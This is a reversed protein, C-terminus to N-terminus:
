PVRTRPGLGTKRRQEALEESRDQCVTWERIVIRPAPRLEHPLPAPDLVRVHDSPEPAAPPVLSTFRPYMTRTGSRRRRPRECVARRRSRRSSLRWHSRCFRALASDACEPTEATSRDSSGGDCPRSSRKICMMSCCRSPWGVFDRVISPLREDDHLSARHRSPWAIPEQRASLRRALDQRFVSTTRGTRQETRSVKNWYDTPRECRTGFRLERYRSCRSAGM